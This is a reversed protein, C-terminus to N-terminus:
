LLCCHKTATPITDEAGPSLTMSGTRSKNANRAAAALQRLSVGDLGQEAFLREATLVIQQKTSPPLVALTAPDAAVDVIWARM